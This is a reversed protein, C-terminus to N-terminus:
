KARLVNSEIFPTYRGAKLLLYRLMFDGVAACSIRILLLGPSVAETTWFFLTIALPLILSILIVGFYFVVSLEGRVIVRLSEKQTPLSHHAAWLYSVILLAYSFLSWRAPTELPELLDRTSVMLATAAAFQTGLWLGSAISLLPLVGSNWFPIASISNMTLFGHIIVFFSLMTMIVQLLITESEWPFSNPPGMSPAVQIAGVVCFLMMIIMGRSLESKRPRLVARWARLPKGLYLLHFGGGLVVSIVWGAMCGRWFNFFMSILYLGAGIESFFFALLLLLGRREVWEKQPTYDVMWLYPKLEM